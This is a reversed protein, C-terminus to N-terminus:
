GRAVVDSVIYEWTTEWMHFYKGKWEFRILFESPDLISQDKKPPKGTKIDVCVESVKCGRYSVPDGMSKRWKRCVTYFVKPPMTFGAPGSKRGRCGPSALRNHIRHGISIFGGVDEYIYLAEPNSLVRIISM